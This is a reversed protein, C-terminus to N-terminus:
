TNKIGRYVRRGVFLLLVPVWMFVCTFLELTIGGPFRHWFLRSFQVGVMMYVILLTLFFIM